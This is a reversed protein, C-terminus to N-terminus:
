SNQAEQDADIQPILDERQMLETIDMSALVSGEARHIAAELPALRDMEVIASHILRKVIAFDGAPDPFLNTARFLLQGTDWNMEINGVNLTLNTRMALEALRERRAASDTSRPSESVISMMNWQPFVQAHLMVRTHFVELGTRIVERDPFEEYAWDEDDFAAKITNYLPSTVM